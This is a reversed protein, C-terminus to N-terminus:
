RVELIESACRNGSEYAGQMFGGFDASTHEGAFLLRGELGPEATVGWVSTVQGVKPCSYAGKSFRYRPWIWSRKNGDHVASIGPFVRDLEGLTDKFTKDNFEVTGARGGRFNTLIGSKGNQARSTEWFSQSSQATYVSGNCAPRGDAATRWPRERFGYMVKVNTGYGLQQISALKEPSLDLAAVGEVDRLLTFPLACIVRSFRRTKAGGASQFTLELSSGDDTIKTLFHEFHIPVKGDIAAAVADILTSNGGMVRKSEDSEGFIKFGESTDPDIYTLLNLSSQESCELGYEGTYAVDLLDIVWAPCSDKHRDLWETISVQDLALAAESWDEDEGVYLTEQDAAIAAALEGFELILDRETYIRDGFHYLEVGPDGDKLEQIPVDLEAALEILDVHNTDVLEAGLECFQGEDNFKNLTFIRGGTRASGEFLECAQGARHLRYAAALGAAGAGLIAVPDASWAGAGVWPRAFGTRAAAAALPLAIGAQAAARLFDRRAMTDGRGAAFGAEILEDRISRARPDRALFAAKRLARSVTRFLPTRGRAGPTSSM